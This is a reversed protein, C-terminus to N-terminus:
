RSLTESLIKMLESYKDQTVGHRGKTEIATIYKPNDKLLQPVNYSAIIQDEDGYILVTPTTLNALTRYNDRSIVIKEMSNKFARDELIAPNNASVASKFGAMGLEFAPNDLDRETYIPPSILILKEASKKYTDVYRTVIFTGLSHGVLVLPVELDLEHISNHLATLQDHYDYEFEDSKPSKGSGLLDFTIFRADKLKDDAELHKLAHDYTSSDSAIGHILVVALRPNKVASYDHTKALLIKSKPM